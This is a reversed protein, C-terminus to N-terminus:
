AFLNGIENPGIPERIAVMVRKIAPLASLAWIFAKRHGAGHHLDVDNRYSHERHRLGRSVAASREGAELDLTRNIRDFEAVAVKAPVNLVEVSPQVTQFGTGDIM